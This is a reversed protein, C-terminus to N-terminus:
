NKAVLLMLWASDGGEIFHNLPVIMAAHTPTTVIVYAQRGYKATLCLYPAIFLSLPTLEEGAVADVM